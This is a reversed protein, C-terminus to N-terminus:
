ESVKTGNLQKELYDAFGGLSLPNCCTDGLGHWFVVPLHGAAGLAGAILPLLLLGRVARM